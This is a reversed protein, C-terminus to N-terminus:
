RYRNIEDKLKQAATRPDQDYIIGRSSSIILGRGDILGNRLTEGLDGAQTGIGPILMVMDGIVERAKKIQNPFTAGMVVALNNYQKNWELTKRTVTLYLPQDQPQDQIESAGRNSSHVLIFVGKESRTFFPKLAEIGYYPNVTVADAQYIGFAEKAYMENTHEVDGRKADLLVPIDPHQTKLYKITELLEELGKTGNTGYFAINPKYCCVLDATQEIINKNFLFQSQNKPLKSPDPDLGICLLSNNKEIAKQLKAFFIM